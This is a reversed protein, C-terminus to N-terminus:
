LGCSQTGMRKGDCPRQPQLGLLEFVLQHLADYVRIQLWGVESPCLFSPSLVGNHLFLAPFSVSVDSRLFAFHRNEQVLEFERGVPFRDLTIRGCLLSLEHNPLCGPGIGVKSTLGLQPRSGCM